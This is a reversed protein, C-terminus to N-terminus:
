ALIKFKLHFWHVSKATNEKLQKITETLQEFAHKIDHGKLEIYHETNSYKVLFDCRKGSTIQCGDVTIKDVNLKKTNIFVVKNSNEKCVIKASKSTEYCENKITM